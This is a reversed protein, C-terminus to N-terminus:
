GAEDGKVGSDLLLLHLAFLLVEEIRRLLGELRCRDSRQAGGEVDDVPRNRRVALALLVEVDNSPEDLHGAEGIRELGLPLEPAACRARPSGTSSVPDVTAKTM